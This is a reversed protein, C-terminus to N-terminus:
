STVSKLTYCLALYSCCRATHSRFWAKAFSAHKVTPSVRQFRECYRLTCDITCCSRCFLVLSVSCSM